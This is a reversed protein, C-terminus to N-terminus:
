KGLAPVPIVIKGEHEAVFTANSSTSTGNASKTTQKLVLKKTPKLVAKMPRGDPAKGNEIKKLDEPTLNVLEISTLKEGAGMTMMMKYGEVADPHSGKTYLFGHLAKVDKAEFARKYADIFNKEAASTAAESPLASTALGITALVVFARRTVSARSSSTRHM